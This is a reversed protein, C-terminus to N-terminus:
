TTAERAYERHSMLLYIPMGVTFIVLCALHFSWSSIDGVPQSPAPFYFQGLLPYWTSANYTAHVCIPALLTGTRRFLCVYIMSGLFASTLLQHYFAFVASTMLMAVIWGWRAKWTSYLFGRFITEEVLPAIVVAVLVAALGTVQWATAGGTPDRWTGVRNELSVPGEAFWYWMAMAGFIAFPQLLKMGGVIAVEFWRERPIPAFLGSIFSRHSLGLVLLLSGLAVMPLAKGAFGAWAPDEILKPIVYKDAPAALLMVAFTLFAIAAGTLTGKQM